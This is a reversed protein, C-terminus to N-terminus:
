GSVSSPRDSRRRPRDEGRDGSHRESSRAPLLNGQAPDGGATRARLLRPLRHPANRGAAWPGAKRDGERLRRGSGGRRLRLLRNRHVRHDLGAEGQTAVPGGNQLDALDAPTRLAQCSNKEENEFSEVIKELKKKSPDHYYQNDIQVVPALACCGLCHVTELTFQQRSDTQGPKLGLVASLRTLM